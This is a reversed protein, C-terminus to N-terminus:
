NNNGKLAPTEDNEMFDHVINPRVEKTTNIVRPDDFASAAKLAEDPSPAQKGPDNATAMGTVPDKFAGMPYGPHKPLMGPNGFALSGILVVSMVFTAVMLFKKM